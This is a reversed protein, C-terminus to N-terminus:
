AAVKAVDGKLFKQIFADVIGFRKQNGDNDANQFVHVFAQYAELQPFGKGLYMYLGQVDAASEDDIARKITPNKYKHSYEHLLIMLRMPVTYTLFYKRSVDIRGTNHGIRAPTTIPLGTDDTRIVDYYEITFKGDNSKYVHPAFQGATYVGANESFQIAFKLFSEDQPSMWIEYTKLKKTTINSVIFSEKDPSINRQLNGSADLGNQTPDIVYLVLNAPSVPLDLELTRSGNVETTRAIYFTYPKKLDRVYVKFKGKGKNKTSITISLTFAKYNSLIERQM